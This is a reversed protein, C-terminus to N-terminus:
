SRKAADLSMFEQSEALMQGMLAYGARPAGYSCGCAHRNCEKQEFLNGCKAGGSPQIVIHRERTRLGCGCKRSCATWDTWETLECNQDCPQSNCGVTDQLLPCGLGGSQPKRVVTRTRTANGGSCAKSCVSYASWANVVCDGPCEVDDNCTRKDKLKGCAAGGTAAATVIDRTRAQRGGGCSRSCASWGAWPSVECDVKCAQTNCTSASVLASCPTGGYAAETLVIRSKLKIGGACLESCESVNSWEGMKCNIPCPETNCQSTSTLVPCEAGGHSAPNLM